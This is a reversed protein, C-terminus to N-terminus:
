RNGCLDEIGNHNDDVWHFSTPNFPGSFNTYGDLDEDSVTFDLCRLRVDALTETSSPAILIDQGYDLWIPPSVKVEAGSELDPVLFIVGGSCDIVVGEGDCCFPFNGTGYAIREGAEVINSSFGNAMSVGDGSSGSGCRAQGNVCCNDVLDDWGNRNEGCVFKHTLMGTFEYPSRNDMFAHNVEFKQCEERDFDRTVALAGMKVEHQLVAKLSERTATDHTTSAAWSSSPCEGDVVTLIADPETGNGQAMITVQYATNGTSGRGDLSTLELNGTENSDLHFMWEGYDVAPTSGPVYSAARVFIRTNLNCDNRTLEITPSAQDCDTPAAIEFGTASCDPATECSGECLEVNDIIFTEGAVDYQHFEFRFRCNGGCDVSNTDFTYSAGTVPTDIATDISKVVSYPSAHQLIMIRGIRANTTHAADFRLEYQTSPALDLNYQYFQCFGPNDNGASIAAAGGSTNLTAQGCGLSWSSSGSSFDGNVIVNEGALAPVIALALGALFMTLKKM